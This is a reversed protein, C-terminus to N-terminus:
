KLTNHLLQPCLIRMLFPEYMAPTAHGFQAATCKGRQDVARLSCSAAGLGLCSAALPTAFSTVLRVASCEGSVGLVNGALELGAKHLGEPSGGSQRSGRSHGLAGSLAVAESQAESQAESSHDLPATPAV